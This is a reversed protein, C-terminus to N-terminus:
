QLCAQGKSTLVAGSLFWGDPGNGNELVRLEGQEIYGNKQCLYVVHKFDHELLNMTSLNPTINKSLLSLLKHIYHLNEQKTM